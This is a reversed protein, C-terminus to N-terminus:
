GKTGIVVENQQLRIEQTKQLVLPHVKTEDDPKAPTIDKM